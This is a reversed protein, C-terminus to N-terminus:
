ENCNINRSDHNVEQNSAIDTNNVINGETQLLRIILRASCLEEQMEKLEKKMNLCCECESVGNIIVKGDLSKPSFDSEKTSDAVKVLMVVMTYNFNFWIDNCSIEVNLPWMLNWKVPCPVCINHHLWDECVFGM